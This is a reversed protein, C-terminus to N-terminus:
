RDGNVFAELTIRPFVELYGGNTANYARRDHAEFMNRSMGYVIDAEFLDPLEWKQGGAFYRPDFHSEDTEGSTVPKNAPGKAAFNHDAGIVAVEQFGMHFALQFAVYTVTAGMYVSMSCDKSFERHSTTHIYTVNPRTGILKKARYDLFLPIDTARYFDANQELVLHNVSAICSPRFPSRDFLLNIKNLGFTYVNDLLSLDSKLLSPGNCLIVAKEGPHTNRLQKLRSRSRWSEPDFDWPVRRVLLKAAQIYPNNTARQTVLVDQPDM